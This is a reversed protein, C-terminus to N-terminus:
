SKKNLPEFVVNYSRTSNILSEAMNKIDGSSISNIMNEFDEMSSINENDLVFDLLLSMDYRNYNYLEKRDKIYNTLTKNLDNEDIEGDAIKQIEKNVIAVLDDVKDPNCDFRVTLVAKPVPRKVLDSASRAGYTGGEEEPKLVM